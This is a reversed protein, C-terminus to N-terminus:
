AAKRKGFFWRKRTSVEPVVEEKYEPNLIDPHTHVFKRSEEQSAWRETYTEFFGYLAGEEPCSHINRIIMKTKCENATCRFTLEERDYGEEFILHWVDQVSLIKHLENCFARKEEVPAKIYKPVNQNYIKFGNYARILSQNDNNM